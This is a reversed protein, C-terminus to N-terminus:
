LPSNLQRESALTLLHLLGHLYEVILLARDTLVECGDGYVMNQPSSSLKYYNYGHPINMIMTHCYHRSTEHIEIKCPWHVQM